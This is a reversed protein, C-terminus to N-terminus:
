EEISCECGHGENRECNEPDKTCGLGDHNIRENILARESSDLWAYIAAQPGVVWSYGHHAALISDVLWEEDSSNGWADLLATMDGIPVSGKIVKCGNRESVTYQDTESTM